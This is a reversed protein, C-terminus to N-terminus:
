PRYIEYILGNSLSVVFLNGNPGTLVNTVIGFNRGFRPTESETIDFKCVNDAVRDALRPDDVAINTRDATLNVRYLHAAQLATRVDGMMLDVQYDPVR